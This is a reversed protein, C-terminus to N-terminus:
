SGYTDDLNQHHDLGVYRMFQNYSLERSAHSVGSTRIRALADAAARTAAFLADLPYLVLSFGLDRLDEPTLSETENGTVLAIAKPGELGKSIAEVDKMKKVGDLFVLDAGAERYMNARRIAEDVGAVGLADTRGIIVLEHDARSAVAAGIHRAGTKADMLRIGSMQGCRKPSLQDELHLAAVDARIYEDVTREINSPGGYGNDADAIVPVSVARTINRAHDAMETQTLLGLDPTGLRAATAGFGTMYVAPFGADEVLRATLPDSAGPALVPTDSDLLRRLQRAKPM